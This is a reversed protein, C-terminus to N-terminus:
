GDRLGMETKNFSLMSRSYDLMAKGLSFKNEGTEVIWTLVAEKKKEDYLNTKETDGDLSVDAFLILSDREKATIKKLDHTQSVGKLAKGYAEKVREKYISALYKYKPLLESIENLATSIESVRQTIQRGVLDARVSFDYKTFKNDKIKSAILDCKTVYGALEDAKM